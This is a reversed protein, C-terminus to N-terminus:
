DFNILRMIFHDGEADNKCCRNKAENTAWDFMGHLWEHTIVKCLEDIDEIFHPMYYFIKLAESDYEATPDNEDPFMEYEEYFM